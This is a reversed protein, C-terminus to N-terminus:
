FSLCTEEYAPDVNFKKKTLHLRVSYGLNAEFRLCNKGTRCIEWACSHKVHM